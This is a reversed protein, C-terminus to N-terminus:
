IQWAAKGARPWRPPREYNAILDAVGLLTLDYGIVCESVLAGHAQMDHRSFAAITMRYAVPRGRLVRWIVRLRTM